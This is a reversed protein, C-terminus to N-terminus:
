KKSKRIFDNIYKASEPKSLDPTGNVSREFLIYPHVPYNKIM